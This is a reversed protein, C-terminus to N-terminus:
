PSSFSVTYGLMEALISSRCVALFQALETVLGAMADRRMPLWCLVTYGAARPFDKRCGYLIRLITPFISRRGGEGAEEGEEAEGM